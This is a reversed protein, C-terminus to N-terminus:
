AVGTRPDICVAEHKFRGMGTIPVPEVLGRHASPVEFVWGHSKLTGKGNSQIGAPLVIEECTLWSGWPTAGGACNTSTGTLSLHCSELRRTRLDYVLTTTGGALARGDQDRDYILRSDVKDALTQSVGFPGRDPDGLKLEHNRVLSVRDGSLPFCGMGDAKYPTVLGDSMPDGARSVVTYSFGEPLDFLGFPDTKLPGYGTVESRYSDAEIDAPALDASASRALGAFAAMTAAASLLQRRSPTM